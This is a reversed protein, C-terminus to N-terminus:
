KGGGIGHAQEIAWVLPEILGDKRYDEPKLGASALAKAIQERTLPERVVPAASEYTALEYTATFIDPKCPYFEMQIGKIIWDGDSAVHQGELTPVILGANVWSAQSRGAAVQGQNIWELVAYGRADNHWQRAEIVLPKKRYKM